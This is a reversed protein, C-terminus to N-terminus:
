AAETTIGDACARYCELIATWGDPADIQGRLAESNEGMRELLRHEFEVRTRGPGDELFAVAVETVLGPDFQWAANLQWALLLRAPPDWALVRGIDCQSGDEGRQYWRGGAGPEIVTEKVPSRLLTHGVPWWAAIRRTFVDFARAPEANVHLTRRVPAPTIRKATM